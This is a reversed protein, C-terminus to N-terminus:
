CDKCDQVQTLRNRGQNKSEYLAIDVQKLVGKVDVPPCLDSHYLGGSLTLKLQAGDVPFPHEEVAKIIDMAKALSNELPTRSLLVVFEEGGARYVKDDYRVGQKLQMAVEILVLDGVDHGYNDNVRKFWDVDFMLIAFPVQQSFYDNIANEIDEEMNLRNLLGTLADHQALKELKSNAEELHSTRLAVLEQLSAMTRAESENLQVIKRVMPKFIFVVELILVILTLIWNFWEIQQVKTLKQEGEKQYEHVVLNLDHLLSESLGNINSLVERAAVKDNEKELMRALAVYDDVRKALDMKGFYMEHIAPSLTEFEENKIHGTSLRQNALAMEQASKELANMLFAASHQCKDLHDFRKLYLRHADLAIHQSLMRQRGSINVILATDYSRSLASKLAYYATTSLFAILSIAIVYRITINNELKRIDLQWM